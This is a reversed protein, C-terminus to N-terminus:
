DIVPVTHNMKNSFSVLNQTAALYKKVVDNVHPIYPLNSYEICANRHVQFFSDVASRAV